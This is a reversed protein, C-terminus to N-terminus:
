PCSSASNFLAEPHLADIKGLAVCLAPTTNAIEAKCRVSLWGAGDSVMQRWGVSDSVMVGDCGRWLLCAGNDDYYRCCDDGGGYWNWSTADCLVMWLLFSAHAEINKIRKPDNDVLDKQQILLSVYNIGCYLLSGTQGEGM